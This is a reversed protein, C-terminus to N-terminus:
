SSRPAAGPAEARAAPRPNAGPHHCRARHDARRRDAARARLRAGHRDDRAPAHRRLAPASVRRDRQAPSPFASAACCSSRASARGRRSAGRHRLHAEVIQDGVTFGPNLSTMPEQFIMALRNGRLDRLTSTSCELLDCGDFRIAAPSRPPRRQCCGWSPSRRDREQRLRVRRRHRADARARRSFAVGDVAHTHPRTATFVVRLDEITSCRRASTMDQRRATPRAIAPRSSRRPRHHGAPNKRTPLFQRFHVWRERSVTLRALEALPDAHDDVRLDLDSMGREGYILLAASQKGRKDGGAAEGAQMAAILRRAFPLDANAALGRPTTSCRPARWCTAPSPSATARSTGAGTSAPRARYARRHPRQRGDRAAPPQERGADAAILAEVITRRRRPGDRLLALGDATSRTSLAQTAIAGIGAEIHPVIAGVAFFRTAVAIGFHGTARDRAIISWTM